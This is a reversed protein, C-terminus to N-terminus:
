PTLQLLTKMRCPAMFIVMSMCEHKILNTYIGSTRFAQPIKGWADSQKLELLDDGDASKIKIIRFCGAENEFGNYNSLAVSYQRGGSVVTTEEVISSEQGQLDWFFSDIYSPNSVVEGAPTISFLNEAKIFTTSLLLIGM